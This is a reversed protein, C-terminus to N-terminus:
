KGLSPGGGSRYRSVPSRTPQVVPPPVYRGAKLLLAVLALNGVLSYNPPPKVLFAKAGDNTISNDHADVDQLVPMSAIPDLSTLKNNSVDLTTLGRLADIGQVSTLRNSAVELRGLNSLNGIAGMSVLQCHNMRLTSLSRMSAPEKMEAIPNQSADLFYLSGSGQEDSLSTLRNKSVDLHVLAPLIAIGALSGIHNNHAEIRRLKPLAVLKDLSTIHNNSVNISELGTAGQLGELSELGANQVDLVQLMPLKGLGRFDKMKAKDLTLSKLKPLAAMGGLSTIPNNLLNLESLAPLDHVDKLSQLRNDSVNLQALESCGSLDGLSELRNNSLDLSRLKSLSSLGEVTNIQNDKVSLVRLQQLAKVTAISHINKGDLRLLTVHGDEIIIGKCTDCSSDNVTDVNIREPDLKADSLLKQLAATEAAALAVDGDIVDSFDHTLSVGWAFFFVMCMAPVLVVAACGIAVWKGSSSAGSPQAAAATHIGFADLEGRALPSAFSFNVETATRERSVAGGQGKWETAEVTEGIEVKWYFEGIVYDVRAQVTQSHRYNSGRFIAKGGADQVEAADLPEAFTWSGDEELLWRYGVNDGGYLLYERWAYTEGEVRCSRIVFGAVVYDNGRLQGRRGINIAPAIPPAPAPGLAHLKGQRLDSATACYPCVIREAAKTLLPLNGGCTPCEVAAVKAGPVELPLGDDFTIQEPLFQRGLYLEPAASGDGYDITGFRGGEANIDAYGSRVGPAPVTTMAGEGSVVQRHGIEQVVWRGHEGLDVAQGARLTNLPPLSEAPYNTETTSYWRGQAHAVWTHTDQAPFALLVEEWPASAQGIRDLQIRGQVVFPQGDWSGTRDLQFPTPLELLDAMRGSAQLGRDTRAVVFQCYSCVIARAGGFPFTVAGGCNPCAAQRDLTSM